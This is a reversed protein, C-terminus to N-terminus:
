TTAATSGPYGGLRRRSRWRVLRPTQYLAWVVATLAVDAATVAVWIWTAAAGGLRPLALLVLAAALPLFVIVSLM